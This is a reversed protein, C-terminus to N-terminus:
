LTVMRLSYEGGPASAAVPNSRYIMRLIQIGFAGIFLVAANTYHGVQYGPAGSPTYIFLGLVQGVTGRAASIPIALRTANTDRLNGTFWVSLSPSCMFSFMTGLSLMAYRAQFATLPLAGGITALEVVQVIFTVGALAISVVGCKSWARYRDAVWSMGVTGVFVAAYPPVTLLQAVQGEYGLGHIITPAFLLINAGDWTIKAHGVSKSSEHKMRRIAIARDAASFWTSTEPFSPLFLYVLVALLCSPAGEIFFLWRWGELGGAGNLHGVGYAICGGFAAGLPSSAVAEFAGLLLRLVLVTIYNQSAAMIILTAGWGLMLFALWYPPAFYKLMYNSPIQFLMGTAFIVSAVALFQGETMHLVQVFSDGTDANLVIVNGINAAALYGLLFMLAFSPIIRLDLRRKEAAINVIDEDPIGTETDQKALSDLSDPITPPPLSTSAM